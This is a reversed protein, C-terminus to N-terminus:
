GWRDATWGNTKMLKDYADAAAAEMIEVFEAVTKYGDISSTLTRHWTDAYEKNMKGISNFAGWTLM